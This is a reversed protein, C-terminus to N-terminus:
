HNDYTVHHKPQHDDFNFNMNEKNQYQREDAVSMEEDDEPDSYETEVRQNREMKKPLNQQQNLKMRLKDKASIKNIAGM